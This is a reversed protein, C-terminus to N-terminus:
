AIKEVRRRWPFNRSVQDSRRPMEVVNTRAVITQDEVIVEEAGGVKELPERVQMVAVKRMKIGSFYEDLPFLAYPRLERLVRGLKEQLTYVRHFFTGKDIGIQHICFKWDAGQLFHWRFVEYEDHNLSRRCVLEFDAIYEENRRGWLRHGKPGDAHDLTLNSTVGAKEVCHRYRVFCARFIARFVCGCPKTDEKVPTKRLGLGRCFVCSASALGITESRTWEM